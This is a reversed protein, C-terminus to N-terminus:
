PGADGLTFAFDDDLFAFYEERENMSLSAADDSNGGDDQDSVTQATQLIESSLLMTAAEARLQPGYTPFTVRTSPAVLSSPSEIAAFTSAQIAEAANLEAFGGQFAAIEKEQAVLSATSTAQIMEATVNDLLARRSSVIGDLLFQLRLTAFPIPVTYQHSMRPSTLGTAVDTPFTHVTESALGENFLLSLTGQVEDSTSSDTGLSYSVTIAAGRQLNATITESEVRVVGSNAFAQGSQGVGTGADVAFGYSGDVGIATNGGPYSARTIQWGDVAVGKGIDSGGSQSFARDRGLDIAVDGTPIGVGSVDSVNDVAFEGNGTTADILTVVEVGEGYHRKWLHYDAVDVTGNANGDAGEFSELNAGLNDRWVTYDAIDVLYDGNYDGPQLPLETQEFRVFGRTLVLTDSNFYEFSLDDALQPYIIEGLYIADGPSLTTMGENTLEPLQFGSPSAEFWTGSDYEQDQLSFWDDPRLSAVTDRFVYGDFSVDGNTDNRLVTRGSSPDVYVDLVLPTADILEISMRNLVWSPDAGGADSITLSLSGDTVPVTFSTPSGSGGSTGVYSYQGAASDINNAILVGEAWIAMDDRAISADGMNLVVSWVGNAVKHELTATSSSTVFDRNADNAGVGSGRDTASVSTSWSIDGFSNPSIRKWDVQKSTLVPSTPTGFDYDFKTQSTDVVVPGENQVYVAGWDTRGSSDVVTYHFFDTGSAGSAPTYVIENRGGPGTGMSLSITAGQQSVTDRLQVDLVDNNADYDNAIVDIIISGGNSIASDLRGFPKVPAATILDGFQTKNLSVNYVQNAEGSSLRGINHSGGGHMVSVFVDEGGAANGNSRPKSEYFTSSPNSPVHGLSWSHGFEHVLTGDAWSSPGNSATLAYRSSTGVSNVYALGSPGGRVHYVALDHTPAIGENAQLNNWYNRFASLGANDNGNSVTFPDSGTRIIVTGLRHKIGAGHLYRADLNGPIKAAELMANDVKQQTTSGSYNNLLAASGIEVGVEFERVSIVRSPPLTATSGSSGAAISSATSSSDAPTPQSLTAAAMALEASSAEAAVHESSEEQHGHADASEEISVTHLGQNDAKPDIVISPLGPRIINAMLGNETLLASVAYDPRGAVTGLYSRDVGPDIEVLSEGGDDIFFRTNAGFVSHKDLTLNWTEGAFVFSASFQQPLGSPLDLEVVAEDLPAYTVEDAPWAADASHEVHSEGDSVPVSVSALPAAALMQRVELTELKLKRFRM